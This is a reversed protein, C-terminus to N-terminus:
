KNPWDVALPVFYTQGDTGQPRYILGAGSVVCREFNGGTGRARTQHTGDPQISLVDGDKAPSGDDRKLGAHANVTATFEGNGLDNLRDKAIVEIATSM